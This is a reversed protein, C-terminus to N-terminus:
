IRAYAGVFDLTACCTDSSIRRTPVWCSYSWHCALSCRAQAHRSWHRRVADLLGDFDLPTAVVDAVALERAARQPESVATLLLVPVAALDSDPLWPQAAQCESGTRVPMVLDLLILCPRERLLRELGRHGNEATFSPSGNASLPTAAM